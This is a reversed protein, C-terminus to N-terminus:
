SISKNHDRNVTELPISAYTTKEGVFGWNTTDALKQPTFVGVTALKLSAVHRRSRIISLHHVPSAGRFWSLSVSCVM